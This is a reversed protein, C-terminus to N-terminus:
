LVMCPTSMIKEGYILYQYYIIYQYIYRSLPIFFNM